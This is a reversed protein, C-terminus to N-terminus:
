KPIHLIVILLSTYLYYVALNALAVIVGIKTFEFFSFAKIGRSEAAEIIIINSAAGLITLNGAITSAAALMMWQGVYAGTFGNSTMVFNYLAVFPVNSMIQSLGVSVLAIVGNSQLPDEKNPSPLHSMILSIAGSSWMASTVVFMAAFFILISYDVRKMIEIRDRSLGYLAAAGLMAITSLSFSAVHLFRLLESIFFGALIALLIITSLRALQPSTQSGNSSKDIIVGETAEDSGNDQVKAQLPMLEKRFYTKLIFCTSFLNIATPIGLFALFSTFPLPIGSQIAILLNQPNGIPTMVSGVTIGFALSMLLVAPRVGLKRSVYAVIPIGLLAITDNVLFAALFGMGVVFIIFLSDINGTRSLMASAVRGLVGSRDLASVISFMGFLFGIVDLNVSKIAYDITVVQLGVMLGAGILMATWIPVHLRRRGIILAYVLAFVALAAYESGQM